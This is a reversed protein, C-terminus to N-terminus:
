KERRSTLTFRARPVVYVDALDSWFQMEVSIDSTGPSLPDGSLTTIRVGLDVPEQDVGDHQVRLLFSQCRSPIPEALGGNAAEAMDIRARANVSEGQMVCLWSARVDAHGLPPM